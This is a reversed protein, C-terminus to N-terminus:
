AENYVRIEYVPASAAGNTALVNLRLRNSRVAPFRHVAHRFYNDKAQALAQWSSGTRCEISYDRVCDPYRYLPLTVRRNADTDFTVQM